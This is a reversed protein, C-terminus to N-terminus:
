LFGRQRWAQNGRGIREFDEKKITLVNDESLSLKKVIIGISVSICSSYIIQPINYIINFDGHDEYIKHMTSDNFFLANVICYLVFSFLLLCIKMIISNYDNMPYFTFILLQKKKILSCYYQIYTRKDFKLADKYKLSNLETDNYFFEKKTESKNQKYNVKLSLNSNFEIKM